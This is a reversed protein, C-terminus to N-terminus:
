SACSPSRSRIWDAIRVVARGFRKATGADAARCILNFQEKHQCKMAQYAHEVTAVSVATTREPEVFLATVAAVSFNSLFRYPGAFKTIPATPAPLPPATRVTRVHVTGSRRHTM